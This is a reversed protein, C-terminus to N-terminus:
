NCTQRICIYYRFKRSCLRAIVAPLNNDRHRKGHKYHCVNGFKEEVYEWYDELIMKDKEWESVM